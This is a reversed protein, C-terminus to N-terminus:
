ATVSFQRLFGDVDEPVRYLIRRGVRCYGKFAGQQRLKKLLSYSIGVARAFERENLARINIKNEM